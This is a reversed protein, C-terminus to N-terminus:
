FFWLIPAAMVNFMQCLLEMVFSHVMLLFCRCVIRQPQMTNAVILWCCSDTRANAGDGNVLVDDVLRKRCAKGAIRLSEDFCGDCCCGRKINGFSEMADDVAAVVALVKNVNAEGSNDEVNTMGIACDRATAAGVAAM